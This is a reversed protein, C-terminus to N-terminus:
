LLLNKQTTDRSFMSSVVKKKGLNASKLLNSRIVNFLYHRRVVIKLNQWLVEILNPYFFKSFWKLMHFYKPSCQQTAAKAWYKISGSGTLFYSNHSSHCCPSIEPIYLLWWKDLYKFIFCLQETWYTRPQCIHYSECWVDRIDWLTQRQNSSQSTEEGHCGVQSPPSVAFLTWWYPGRFKLQLATNLNASLDGLTQNLYWHLSIRRTSTHSKNQNEPKGGCDLFISTLNYLSKLHLYIDQM